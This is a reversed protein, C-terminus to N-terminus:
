LGVSHAIDLGLSLVMYVCPADCKHRLGRLRAGRAPDCYLVNPHGVDTAPVSGLPGMAPAFDLSYHKMNDTM